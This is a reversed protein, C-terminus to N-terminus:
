GNAMTRNGHHAVNGGGSKIRRVIVNKANKQKKSTKPPRNVSAKFGNHSNLIAKAENQINPVSQKSKTNLLERM